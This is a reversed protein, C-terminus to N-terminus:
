VEYAIHSGVEVIDVMMYM